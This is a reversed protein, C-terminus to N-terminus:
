ENDQEKIYLEELSNHWELYAIADEESIYELEDM